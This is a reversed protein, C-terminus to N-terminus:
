ELSRRVSATHPSSPYLRMFERALAEARARQGTQALAEVTLAVREQILIGEPFDRTLQELAVIAEQARGARILGRAEAVRQSELRARDGESEDARKM